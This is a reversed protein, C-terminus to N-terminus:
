KGCVKAVNNTLWATQKALSVAVNNMAAQSTPVSSSLSPPIYYDFANKEINGVLAVADFTTLL